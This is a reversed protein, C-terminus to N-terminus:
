RPGEWREREGSQSSPLSRYLQAAARAPSLRELIHAAGFSAVGVAARLWSLAPTSASTKTPPHPPPPRNTLIQPQTCTGYARPLRCRFALSPLAGTHKSSQIVHAFTGSGRAPAVHEPVQELENNLHAPAVLEVLSSPWYGDPGMGEGIGNSVSLPNAMPNERIPGYRWYVRRPPTAGAGWSSSTCCGM